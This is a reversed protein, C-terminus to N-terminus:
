KCGNVAMEHIKLWTLGDLINRTMFDMRDIWLKRENVAKGAMEMWIKGNWVNGDIKMWKWSNKAIEVIELWKWINGAIELWEFWNMCIGAMELEFEMM